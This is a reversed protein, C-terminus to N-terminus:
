HIIGLGYAVGEAFTLVDMRMVYLTARSVGLAAMIEDKGASDEYLMQIMRSQLGDSYHEHVVKVLRLWKEPNRLNFTHGNGYEVVVNPLSSVNNIAENAVPDSISCTKSGGGAIRSGTDNRREYVARRINQENRLVWEILNNSKM